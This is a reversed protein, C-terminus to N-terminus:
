DSVSTFRESDRDNGLRSAAPLMESLIGPHVTQGCAGVPDTSDILILDFRRREEALYRYADDILIDARDDLFAGGSVEPFFRRSLEVIESDIEVMM